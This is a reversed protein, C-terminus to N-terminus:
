EFVRKTMKLYWEKLPPDAFEFSDLADLLTLASQVDTTLESVIRESRESFKTRLLLTWLAELKLSGGAIAAVTEISQLHKWDAVVMRDNLKKLTGLLNDYASDLKRLDKVKIKDPFPLVPFLRNAVDGFYPLKNNQVLAIASEVDNAVKNLYPDNKTSEKFRSDMLRHRSEPHVVGVGVIACRPIARKGAQDQRWKGGPLFPCFAEMYKRAQAPDSVFLPHSIQTFRTGEQRDFALALSFAADDADLPRTIHPGDVEWSHTWMRGSLPSIQVRKRFIPRRRILRVAQFVARGGAVALHDGALIRARIDDGAHNGLATHLSDDQARSDTLKEEVVVAIAQDLDYGSSSSLRESIAEDKRGVVAFSADVDFAIVGLERAEKLLKSIASPDNPKLGIATLERAFTKNALIEKHNMEDIYYLKAVKALIPQRNAKPRGRM